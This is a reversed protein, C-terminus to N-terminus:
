TFITGLKISKMNMFASLGLPAKAILSPKGMFGMAQKAKFPVNGSAFVLQCRTQM